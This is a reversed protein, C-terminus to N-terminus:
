IVRRIENGLFKENAYIEIIARIRVIAILETLVDCSKLDFSSDDCSVKGLIILLGKVNKLKPM